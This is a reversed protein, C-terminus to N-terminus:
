YRLPRKRKIAAIRDADGASLHRGREMIELTYEEYTPGLAQARRVRMIAIEAPVDWARKHAAKWDFYTGVPGNGWEHAPELPPGGNDGFKRDEAM